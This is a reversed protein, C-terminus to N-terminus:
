VPRQKDIASKKAQLAVTLLGLSLLAGSINAHFAARLLEDPAAATALSCLSAGMLLAVASLRGSEHLHLEPKRRLRM